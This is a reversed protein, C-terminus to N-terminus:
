TRGRRKYKIKREIVVISDEDIFRSYREYTAPFVICEIAVM